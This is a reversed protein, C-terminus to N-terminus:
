RRVAPVLAEMGKQVITPIVTPPLSAWIDQSSNAVAVGLDGQVRNIRAGGPQSVDWIYSVKANKGSQAIVFATLVVPADAGVDVLLAINEKIAAQNLQRMIEQVVAPPPGAIPKMAVLAMQPSPEMKAPQQPPPSSQLSSTIVDMPSGISCAGSLLALACAGAAVVFRVVRM